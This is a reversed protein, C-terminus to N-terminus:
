LNKLDDTTLTKSRKAYARIVAKVDASQKSFNSLILKKDEALNSNYKVVKPANEQIILRILRIEINNPASKVASEITKAGRSFLEKKVQRNLEYKARLGYAAGKYALVVPDNKSYDKLSKYLDDTHAESEDAKQFASRISALDITAFSLFGVLLITVSNM